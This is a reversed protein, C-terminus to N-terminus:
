LTNAQSWTEPPNNKSLSYRFVKTIIPVFENIFCKYFEGPLGDVGPSKNSKLRKIADRIETQTIPTIMQKSAEESLTPLNLGTLFTDTNQQQKYDPNKIYTKTSHHLPM